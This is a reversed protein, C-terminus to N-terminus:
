DIKNSEEDSAASVLWTDYKLVAIPTGNKFLCSKM